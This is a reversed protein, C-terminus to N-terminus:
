EAGCTRARWSKAMKRGGDDNEAACFNVMRRRVSGAGFHPPSVFDPPLPSISYFFFLSFSAFRGLSMNAISTAGHVIARIQIKSANIKAAKGGVYLSFSLWVRFSDFIEQGGRSLRYRDSFKGCILAHLPPYNLCPPVKTVLKLPPFCSPSLIKLFYDTKPTSPSFFSILRFHHYTLADHYHSKYFHSECFLSLTILNDCVKIMM